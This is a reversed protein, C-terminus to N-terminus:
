EGAAARLMVKIEESKAVELATGDGVTGFRGRLQTNAGHALFIAVIGKLGIFPTAFLATKRWKIPEGVEASKALLRRVTVVGGDRVAEVLPSTDRAVASDPLISATLVTLIVVVLAPLPPYTRAKASRIM